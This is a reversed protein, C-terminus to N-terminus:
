WGVFRLGEPDKYLQFARELKSTIMPVFYLFSNSDGTAALYECSSLVFLVCYTAIGECCDECSTDNLNQLPISYDSAFSYFTGQSVFADGTWSVFPFSCFSFYYTLM